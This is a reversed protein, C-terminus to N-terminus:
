LKMKKFIWEPIMKIIFMILRWYGPLYAVAKGSLMAKYIGKGVVGPKAFLPSKPLHATMPTDVM